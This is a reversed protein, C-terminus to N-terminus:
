PWFSTFTNKALREIMWELKDKSRCSIPDADSGDIKERLLDPRNNGQWIDVLLAAQTESSTGLLAQLASLINDQEGSHVSLKDIDGEIRPLVKCMLFDDWVAQLAQDTQPNTCKVSLLLENLARYALEFPTDKLIENIQKLFTISKLGDKDASVENLDDQTVQFLTPFTLLKPQTKAEFYDDFDNPFFKGFDFSLARDLVKRSFGHTTEDMNVTGAVILNPPLPVGRNVIYSSLGKKNEDSIELSDFLENLLVELSSSGDCEKNKLSEFVTSPLLAHCNYEGNKWERTELISLYDSFYQEVPALNMEDLCLWYPPIESTNRWIIQDKNASEMAGCLAKITFKLFDTAVYSTGNLRSIYGLLDSPEHWDPRVPVLCLNDGDQLGFKVASLEAQQRVFRTKGTGSIGALLLFPKPLKEHVGLVVSEKTSFFDILESLVAENKQFAYILDGLISSSSNPLNIQTLIVSGFCDESSRLKPKNDKVNVPSKAGLRYENADKKNDVFASFLEIEQRSKFKNKFEINNLINDKIQDRDGLLISPNSRFLDFKNFYKILEKSFASLEVAFRFFQNPIVAYNDDSSGQKIGTISYATLSSVNLKGPLIIASIKKALGFPIKIEQLTNERVIPKQILQEAAERLDVLM